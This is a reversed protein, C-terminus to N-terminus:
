DLDDFNYDEVQRQVRTQELKEELKKRSDCDHQIKRKLSIPSESEFNGEDDVVEAGELAPTDATMVPDDGGDITDVESIM